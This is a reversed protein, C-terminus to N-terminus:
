SWHGDIWRRGYPGYAWHGSVWHRGPVVAIQRGPVWIWRMGARRYHGSEWVYGPRVVIRERIPAPPPPGHYWQASANGASASFAIGALLASAALRHISKAFLTM